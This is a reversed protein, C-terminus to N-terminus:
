KRVAHVHEEFLKIIEGRRKEKWTKIDTVKEGNLLVLPDPLTYPPINDEDYQGPPYNDPLKPPKAFLVGSVFVFMLSITITLTLPKKM